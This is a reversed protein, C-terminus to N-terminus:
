LGEVYVVKGQRIFYFTDKITFAGFGNKARLKLRVVWYPEKKVEVKAVKSWELFESSNYDNLNNRLYRVVPDVRGDLSSNEPKDGLLFLEAAIPAMREILKKVLSQAAKYDKDTKPIQRLSDLVENFPSLDSNEYEDKKFQLLEETRKKLDAFQLPTPTPVPTPQNNAVQNTKVLTAVKSPEDNLSKPNTLNGVVGCLLISGVVVGIATWNTKRPPSALPLPLPSTQNQGFQLNCNPCSLIGALSYNLCRPCQLNQIPVNQSVGCYRCVTQSQGPATELNAGCGNCNM